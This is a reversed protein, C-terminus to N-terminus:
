RVSKAGLYRPGWYSSNMNSITVGTSTGAHIFQNGGVYIGAHSPGSTYTEFFVIDGVSPSSVSSGANWIQAVTRPLDVGNQDFVYNLYGSCDFGSPSTGGWTYPSGILSKADSILSSTSVSSSSSDSSDSTGASATQTNGSSSSTNGQLANYTQPGAIGDVGIGADRQFARVQQATVPGYVGDISLSYGKNSLESQLDQVQAGRDGQRLVDGSWSGNNSSSATTASSSSSSSSRHNSSSNGNIAGYTEPGAIGDVQIGKDGQLDRVAQATIPGYIGDITYDYYGKDSLIDQLDKVESNSMGQSLIDGTWEAADVVAPTAVIAGAVASGVMFKKVSSRRKM